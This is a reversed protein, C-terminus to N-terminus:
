PSRVGSSCRCCAGSGIRDAAEAEDRQDGLLQAIPEVLVQALVAEGCLLAEQQCDHTAETLRGEALHGPGHGRRVLIGLLDGHRQLAFAHECDDRVHSILSSFLSIAVLAPRRPHALRLRSSKAVTPVQNSPSVAFCCCCSAANSM